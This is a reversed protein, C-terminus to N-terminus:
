CKCKISVNETNYLQVMTQYHIKFKEQYELVSYKDSYSENRYAISSIKRNSRTLFISDAEM